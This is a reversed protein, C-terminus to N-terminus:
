MFVLRVGSFSCFVNTQKAMVFNIEREKEREGTIILTMILTVTDLDFV